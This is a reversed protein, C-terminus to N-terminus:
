RFKFSVLEQEVLGFDRYNIRTRAFWKSEPSYWFEGSLQGSSYGYAEIKVARLQGAKVAVNEVGVVRMLVKVSRAAGVEADEYTFSNLWEKNPQLPWSIVRDM